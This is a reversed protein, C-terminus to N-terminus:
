SLWRSALADLCATELSQPVLPDLHLAAAFNERSPAMAAAVISAEHQILPALINQVAPPPTPGPVPTPRDMGAGLRIRREPSVTDDGPTTAVLTQPADGTLARIMPLVGLAYWPMPRRALGSPVCHPHRALDALLARKLAMLQRARGPPSVPAVGKLLRHYKLPVAGLERIWGPEIGLNGMAPAAAIVDDLVDRGDVRLHHLFGRHNLGSYAWGLAANPVGLLDAIQRATLEPLECVGLCRTHGHVHHLLSTSPGLPNTLNIIWADPAHRAIAQAVPAILRGLRIAANLGGLGFTEDAPLGFRHCLAEDEDRGTLDGYRVQHVVIDAGDLTAALDTDATVTWGLPATLHTALTHVAALSARNRGHLRIALRPLNPAAQQAATFLGITFPTSGGLVAITPTGTM